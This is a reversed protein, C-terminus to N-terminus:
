SIRPQEVDLISPSIMSCAIMQNTSTNLCSNWIHRLIYFRVEVPRKNMFSTVIKLIYGGLTDQLPPATTFATFLVNLLEHKEPLKEAPKQAPATRSTTMTSEQTEGAPKPPNEADDKIDEFIEEDESPSAVPQTKVKTPDDSPECGKMDFFSNRMNPPPMAM